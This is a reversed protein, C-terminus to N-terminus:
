WLDYTTEGAIFSFIDSSACNLGGKLADCVKTSGLPSELNSDARYIPTEADSKSLITWSPRMGLGFRM